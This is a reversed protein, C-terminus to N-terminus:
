VSEKNLKERKQTIIKKMEDLKEPHVWFAEKDRKLWTVQRKAFRRTNQKILNVAEELSTEGDFHAFLEKYGVTNLTQLGQFDRLSLAEAVLGNEIMADVRRNIREYLVPRPVDM